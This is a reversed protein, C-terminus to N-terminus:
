SRRAEQMLSEIREARKDWSFAGADEFARRALREAFAGDDILQRIGGALAAADSPTILVANEGNTLVERISPLDSAVIPKGMALYEFLKLPSTYSASIKTATNPLVLVDANDLAQAVLPPEIWGTFTVRSALGLRGALDRTRQLDAEAPLGGVILGQTGPLQVLAELLIDVGKWPYLHGAYGVIAPSRIPRPAFSRGPSLRVGDPVVRVFGRRSFRSHLEDALHQTLTAYGDAGRWVRHERRFLRRLKARTAGRGGTLLAPMEAAVTPAFGHSEYVIPPRMARPLRLLAAAVGLDRTLVADAHRVGSAHKLAAALYRARSLTAFRSRAVRRVFLGAVPLLGYFEVPDRPPTIVDPRVLLTVEHGRRALAHCTEMTQIGNARELPFRIDALVLIRV